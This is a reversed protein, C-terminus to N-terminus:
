KQLVDYNEIMVGSDKFVVKYIYRYNDFYYVNEETESKQLSSLYEFKNAEMKEMLYFPPKEKLKKEDKRERLYLRIGKEPNVLQSNYREYEGSYDTFMKRVVNNRSKKVKQKMVVGKM